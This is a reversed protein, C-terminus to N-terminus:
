AGHVGVADLWYRAPEPNDLGKGIAVDDDPVKFGLGGSPYPNHSAGRNGVHGVQRPPQPSIGRLRRLSLVFAVRWSVRTDLKDQIACSPSDGSRRGAALDSKWRRGADSDNWGDPITMKHPKQVQTYSQNRHLRAVITVLFTSAKSINGDEWRNGKINYLM